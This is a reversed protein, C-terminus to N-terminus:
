PNGNTGPHTAAPPSSTTTPQPTTPQTPQVPQTPQTPAQTPQVVPPQTPQVTPPSTPQAVPPQTPQVTPPSTPQAVPPQTPQSVSPQKPQAVPTQMTQVPPLTPTSQAVSSQVPQSVSPQTSQSVSPQIAQPTAASASKPAAAPLTAGQNTVPTPSATAVMTNQVGQSSSPADTAVPLTATSANPASACGVLVVCVGAILGISIRTKSSPKVIGTASPSFAMTATRMFYIVLVFTFLFVYLCWLWFRKAGAARKWDIWGQLTTFGYWDIVLVSVLVGVLLSVGFGRYGLLIFSLFCAAALLLLIIISYPKNSGHPSPGAAQTPYVFQGAYPPPPYTSQQPLSQQPYYRTPLYPDTPYNNNQPPYVNSNSM